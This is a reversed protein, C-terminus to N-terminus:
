DRAVGSRRNTVNKEVSAVNMSKLRSSKKERKAMVAFRRTCGRTEKVYVFVEDILCM